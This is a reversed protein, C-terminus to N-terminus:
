FAANGSLKCMFNSNGNLLVWGKAKSQSKNINIIFRKIGQNAFSGVNDSIFGYTDIMGEPFLSIQHNLFNIQCFQNNATDVNFIINMPQNTLKTAYHQYCYSIDKTNSDPDGAIDLASLRNFEISFQHSSAFSHTTILLAFLCLFYKM